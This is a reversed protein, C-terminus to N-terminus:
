DITTYFLQLCSGPLADIIFRGLNMFFPVSFNLRTKEVHIDINRDGSQNQRFTLDIIPPTSVQISSCDIRKEGAHSHFM